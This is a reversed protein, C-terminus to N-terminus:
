ELAVQLAAADVGFRLDRLLQNGIDVLCKRESSTRGDYTLPIEAQAASVQYNGYLRQVANMPVTVSTEFFLPLYADGNCCPVLRGVQLKAAFLGAGWFGLASWWAHILRITSRLSVFLDPISWLDAAGTGIRDAVEFLCQIGGKSDFAWIMEHDRALDLHNFRFWTRARDEREAISVGLDVSRRQGISPYLRYLMEKFRGDMTVDLTVGLPREPVVGIMLNTDSRLRNDMNLRSASTGASSKAKTVFFDRAVTTFPDVQSAANAAVSRIRDLLAQLQAASAPFTGDENRVYVPKDGKLYLHLRPQPLVRIVVLLNNRDDPAPCTHVEFIPVPSIRTAIQSSIQTKLDSNKPPPTGPFRQRDDSVGVVLLGGYTNALAAVDPCQKDANWIEKFDLRFKEEVESRSLQVIAQELDPPTVTTLDDSFLNQIAMHKNNRMRRLFVQQWTATVSRGLSSAITQLWPKFMSQHSTGPCLYTDYFLSCAALDIHRVDESDLRFDEAHAANRNRASTSDRSRSAEARCRRLSAPPVSAPSPNM